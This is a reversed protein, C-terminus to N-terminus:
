SKPNPREFYPTGDQQPSETGAKEYDTWQFNELNKTLKVLSM